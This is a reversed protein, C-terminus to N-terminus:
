APKRVESEDGEQDAKGFFVKLPM